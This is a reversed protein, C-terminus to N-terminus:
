RCTTENEDDGEIIEYLVPSKVMGTPKMQMHTSQGDHVRWTLTNVIEIILWNEGEQLMATVDARYPSGLFMGIKKGNVYLTMGDSISPFELIWKQNNKKSSNFIFSGLYRITGSFRPFEGPANISKLEASTIEEKVTRFECDIGAEKLMIKWPGDLVCVEKKNRKIYEKKKSVDSIVGCSREAAYIVSEGPCLELFLRKRSMQVESIQNNIGDYRVIKSGASQLSAWGTFTKDPHENFFMYVYGDKQKYACARLDERSGNICDVQIEHKECAELVKASLYEERVVKASEEVGSIDCQKTLGKQPLSNMFFVQFGAAKARKLFALLQESIYECAPIVLCKYVHGHIYMNGDKLEADNELLDMWVIDCDIQQEMLLRVPRQFLETGGCWEAEGHYLVAVATMMSGGNMLHCLRNMYKMLLIFYPYQPNNGRAYFHPPCDQDPFKPSFAHPVFTNIGRVLMHDTLWKMLWIGEAWGFSGFIECLARGDKGPDLHALSSGLKGLGFHFFEGDRDSAIWQHDCEKFGPIIQLHVVDIGAMHMGKESRFFHGISCGLRAHANDDEIVHGIYEVGHTECWHGIQESFCESVLRSVCDMYDRRLSATAKGAQYWLAPLFAVYDNGWREKLLNNLEESWPLRVNKKGIKEEFSYGPINGLEPEDSFFGAFTKGFDSKYREYHPEYVHDLLVKVSKRDILNMYQERGGGSQTTFLVFLRYYGEPIDFYVIGDHVQETLDYMDELLIDSTKGDKKRCAYVGLIRGDKGLFNEILVAGNELPGILDMHREALYVKAKETETHFRGGAHGTPFKDDDLLWVRMGRKRAEGIIMDLDNWWREGMFDPHPRSEVCFERIGCEEIRDIEELLLDHTEGHLWLFPLIHNDFSNELVENLRKM